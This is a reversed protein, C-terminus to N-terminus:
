FTVTIDMDICKCSQSEKIQGNIAGGTEKICIYINDALLEVLHPLTPRDESRGMGQLEGCFTSGYTVTGASGRWQVFLVVAFLIRDPLRFSPLEHRQSIHSPRQEGHLGSAHKM